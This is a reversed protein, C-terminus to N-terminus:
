FNGYAKAMAADNPNERLFKTVAEMAEPSIVSGAEAKVLVDCTKQTGINKMGKVINMYSLTNVVERKSLKSADGGGPLAKVLPKATGTIGRPPNPTNEVIGLRARLQANEERISKVLSGVQFMAVAVAKQFKDNKTAERHLSKALSDLGDANRSAIAELFPSVDIAENIAPDSRFQETFSKQLFAPQARGFNGEDGEDGDPEEEGGEFDGDAKGRRRKGTASPRQAQFMGSAFAALNSLAGVDGTIGLESMKAIMMEEISGADGPGALSDGTGTQIKGASEAKLLLDRTEVADAAKVLDELSAMLGDVPVTQEQDSM